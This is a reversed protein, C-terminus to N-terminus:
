DKRVWQGNIYEERLWFVDIRRQFRVKVNNPHAFEYYTFKDFYWNYNTTDYGDMSIHWVTDPCRVPLFVTDPVEPIIDPTFVIDAFYASNASINVPITSNLAGYKYLSYYAVLPYSHIPFQIPVASQYFGNPSYYSVTLPTKDTIAISQIPIDIWGTANGEYQASVTEKNGVYLKVVYKGLDDKGKYFRLSTIKGPVLSFFRTGVELASGTKVTGYVGSFITQSFSQQALFILAIIYKM